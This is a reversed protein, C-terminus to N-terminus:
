RFNSFSCGIFLFSLLPAHTCVLFLSLLLCVRMLILMLVGLQYKMVVLCLDGIDKARQCRQSLTQSHLQGWLQLGGVKAERTSLNCSSHVHVVVWFQQSLSFFIYFALWLFLINVNVVFLISMLFIASFM